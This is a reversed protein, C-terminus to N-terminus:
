FEELGKQRGRKEEKGFKGGWAERWTSWSERFIGERRLNDINEKLFKRTIPDSPYGSGFDGYKERLKEIEADRTTKAIISAASVVAYDRDAKHECRINLNEEKLFGLMSRLWAHKNNSPCDIIITIKEKEIKSIKSLLEKIIVSASLAEVENLNLGMGMGTDIEVPSISHTHWAIAKKKIIKELTERKKPTLLKSDKIGLRFLEKEAEKELICGALVMSGIVSGRGADDIGLVLEKGEKEEKM